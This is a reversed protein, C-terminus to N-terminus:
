TKSTNLQAVIAGTVEAHAQNAPEIRGETMVLNHPFPIHGVYEKLFNKLGPNVAEAVDFAEQLLSFTLELFKYGVEHSLHTKHPYAMGGNCAKRM